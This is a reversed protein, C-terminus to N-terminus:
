FLFSKMFGIKKRQKKLYVIEIYAYKNHLLFMFDSLILYKSEVEINWICHDNKHFDRFDYIVSATHNHM